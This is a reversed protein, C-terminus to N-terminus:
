EVVVRGTYKKQGSSLIVTYIGKTIEGLAVALKNDEVALREEKITKGNNDYIGLHIRKGNLGDPVQVTFSSTNPNPYITLLNNEPLVSVNSTIASLKALFFDQGGASTLTTNGFTTSGPLISGTVYVNGDIDEAM